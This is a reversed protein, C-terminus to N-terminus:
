TQSPGPADTGTGDRPEIVAKYGGLKWSQGDRRYTAEIRDYTDSWTYSNWTEVHVDASGDDMAVVRTPLGGPFDAMAQKMLAAYSRDKMGRLLPIKTEAPFIAWTRDELLLVDDGEQVDLKERALKADDAASTGVLVAYATQVKPDSTLSLKFFYHDFVYWSEVDDYYGTEVTFESITFDPLLEAILAKGLRTQREDPDAFTYDAKQYADQVKEWEALRATKAPDEKSPQTKPPVIDTKDSERTAALYLYGAGASACCCLLLVGVVALAVILGTRKKPPPALPPGPPSQPPYGQPPQQQWDSM